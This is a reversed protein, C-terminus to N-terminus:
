NTKKIRQSCVELSSNRGRNQKEYLYNYKQVKNTYLSLM